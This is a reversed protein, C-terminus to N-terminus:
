CALLERGGGKQEFSSKKISGRSFPRFNSDPKWNGTILRRRWGFVERGVRREVLPCPSSHIIRSLRNSDRNDLSSRTDIGSLRMALLVKFHRPSSCAVQRTLVQRYPIAILRGILRRWNRSSTERIRWGSASARVLGPISVLNRTTVIKDLSSDVTLSFLFRCFITYSNNYQFFRWGNDFFTARPMKCWETIWSTECM